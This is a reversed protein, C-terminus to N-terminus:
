ERPLRSHESYKREISVHSDRAGAEFSQTPILDFASKGGQRQLGFRRLSAAFVMSRGSRVTSMQDAKAILLAAGPDKKQAGVVFAWAASSGHSKARPTAQFSM